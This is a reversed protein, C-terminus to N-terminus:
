NEGTRCLTAVRISIPKAKKLAKCCEMVTAGTTHIDDFLIIRKGKIADPNYVAFAGKVNDLREKINLGFQPKTNKIRRLAGEAVTQRTHECLKKALLYAPNYGRKFLRGTALPVPVVTADPWEEFWPLLRDHGLNALPACLRRHSQFKFSHMLERVPGEYTLAHRLKEYPPPKELCAGCTYSEYTEIEYDFDLSKGCVGCINKKPYCVAGLCDNCLAGDVFGSRSSGCGYCHGPFLSKRAQLIKSAFRSLIM